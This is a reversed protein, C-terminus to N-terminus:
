GWGNFAPDFSALLLEPVASHAEAVVVGGVETFRDLAMGLSNPFLVEKLASLDGMLVATAATGSTPLIAVTAQPLLRRAAAAVVTCARV